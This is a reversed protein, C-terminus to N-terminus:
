INIQKKILKSNNSIQIVYKGPNLGKIIIKNDKPKIDDKFVITGLYTCIEILYYTNSLTTITLNNSTSISKITM